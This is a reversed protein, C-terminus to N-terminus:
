ASAGKEPELPAVKTSEVIGTDEQAVDHASGSNTKNAAEKKLDALRKAENHIDVVQRQGQTYFNVIKKGTPTGVAKEFYSNIGSLISNVKPTVGYSQDVSKAKDTAHYKNDLNQLTNLFKSSVGHKEDLNIARQIAADGVVYGHALYEAIIRSRPKDEQAIEDSDHNDTQHSYDDDDSHAAASEVKVENSGLRTSDLLLATKAATEKEFTVSAEQTVGEKKIELSSIKGCFSFFEKIAKETTEPSINKVYVQNASM